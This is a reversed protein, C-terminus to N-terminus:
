DEEEPAPVLEMWCDLCFPTTPGDDPDPYTELTLRHGVHGTADYFSLAKYYSM